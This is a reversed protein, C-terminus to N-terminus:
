QLGTHKKLLLIVVLSLPYLSLVVFGHFFTMVKKQALCGVILQVGIIGITEASFKWEIGPNIYIGIFFIATTFTNNM